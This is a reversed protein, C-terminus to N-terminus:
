DEVLIGHRLYLKKRGKSLVMQERDLSYGNMLLEDFYIRMGLMLRKDVGEKDGREIIAQELLQITAISAEDIEMILDEESVMSKIAAYLAQRNEVLSSLQSFDDRRLVAFLYSYPLEPLHKLLWEMRMLTQAASVETPTTAYMDNVESTQINLSIIIQISLLVRLSILFSVTKCIKPIFFRLM